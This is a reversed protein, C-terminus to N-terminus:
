ADIKKSFDVQQSPPRRRNVAPITTERLELLWDLCSSLIRHCALNYLFAVLATLLLISGFIILISTGIDVPTMEHDAAEQNPSPTAALPGAFVFDM